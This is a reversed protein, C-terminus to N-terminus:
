NKQTSRKELIELLEQVEKVLAKRANRLEDSASAPVKDLLLLQQTLMEELYTYENDGLSVCFICKYQKVYCFFNLGIACPPRLYRQRM